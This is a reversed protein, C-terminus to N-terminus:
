VNELVKLEATTSTEDASHITSAGYSHMLAVAQWVSGSALKPVVAKPTTLAVDVLPATPVTALRLQSEVAIVSEGFPRRYM